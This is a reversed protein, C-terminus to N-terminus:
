DGRQTGSLARRVLQRSTRTIASVDGGADIEEIARGLMGDILTAVLVENSVGIETLAEVLPARLETHLTALRQDRETSPRIRGVQQAIKHAGLEALSLTALVYSDITKLPSDSQVMKEAVAAKWSAFSDEVIRWRIDDVSGFYKYLATRGLGVAEAIEPFTVEEGEVLLRTATDLIEREKAARHEAVTDAQIKPM